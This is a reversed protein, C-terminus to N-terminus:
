AAAWLCGCEAERPWSRRRVEGTARILELTASRTAPWAGSLFADVQAVANAATWNATLPDPVGPRNMLQALLLPWADDERRLTLDACAACADEGPVVLPGVVARGPPTRILLHPIDSRCLEALQGRDPECNEPASIVITADSCQGARDCRRVSGLPRLQEVIQGAMVGSGLVRLEAPPNLPHSQVLAGSDALRGLVWEVWVSEACDQLEKLSHHGDLRMVIGEVEAPVNSLLLASDPDLGLQLVGPRRWLPILEEALRPRLTSAESPAGRTTMILSQDRPGQTATAEGLRRGTAM